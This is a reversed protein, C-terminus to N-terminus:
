GNTAQLPTTIFKVIGQTLDVTENQAIPVIRGNGYDACLHTQAADKGSLNLIESASIFRKSTTILQDKNIRLEYEYGQGVPIKKRRRAFDEVNIKEAM